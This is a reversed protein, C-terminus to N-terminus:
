RLYQLVLLGLRLTLEALGVLVRRKVLLELKKLGLLPLRRWAHEVVLHGVLGSQVLLNRRVHSAVFSQDVLVKLVLVSGVLVNLVHEVVVAVVSCTAVPICRPELFAIVPLHVSLELGLRLRWVILRVGHLSCLGLILHLILSDSTTLLLAVLISSLGIGRQDSPRELTRCLGRRLLLVVGLFAITDGFKWRPGLPRGARHAPALVLTM